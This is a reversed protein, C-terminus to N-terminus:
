ADLREVTLSVALRKEVVELDEKKGVLFRKPRFLLLEEIRVSFERTGASVAEIREARGSVRESRCGWKWYGVIYEELIWASFSGVEGGEENGTLHKTGSLRYSSCFRKVVV